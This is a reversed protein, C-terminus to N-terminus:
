GPVFASAAAAAGNVLPDLAVFFLLVMVASVGLVGALERGPRDFAEGDWVDEGTHADLCIVRLSHGTRGEQNYPVATTLFIRGSAVAPSSWGGGPVPVKWTVNETESWTVPM